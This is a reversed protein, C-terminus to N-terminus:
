CSLNELINEELRSSGLLTARFGSWANEWLEALRAPWFKWCRLNWNMETRKQTAFGKAAAGLKV